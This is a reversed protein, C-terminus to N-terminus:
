SQEKFFNNRKQIRNNLLVVDNCLQSRKKHAVKTGSHIKKILVHINWTYTHKQRVSKNGRSAICLSPKYATMRHRHTQRDREHIHIRDFRTFDYRGIIKWWPLWVMRTKGHWVDHRFESPSGDGRRVPADFASPTLMFRSQRSYYRAISRHSSSSTSSVSPRRGLPM